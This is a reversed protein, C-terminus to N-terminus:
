NARSYSCCVTSVLFAWAWILVFRLTKFFTQFIRRASYFYCPTIEYQEALHSSPFLWILFRNVQYHTLPAQSWGDPSNLKELCQITQTRALDHRSIGLASLTKRRIGLQIRVFRINSFVVKHRQRGMFWLEVDLVWNTLKRKGFSQCTSAGDGLRMFICRQVWSEEFQIIAGKLTSSTGSFAICHFCNRPKQKQSRWKPYFTHVEHM